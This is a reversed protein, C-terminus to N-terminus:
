DANDTGPIPPTFPVSSRWVAEVRETTLANQVELKDDTRSFFSEGKNFIEMVAIGFSWLECQEAYV